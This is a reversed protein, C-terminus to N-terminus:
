SNDNNQFENMLDVNRKLKSMWTRIINIIIYMIIIVMIIIGAM